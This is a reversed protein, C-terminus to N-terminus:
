SGFEQSSPAKPSFSHATTRHTPSRVFIPERIVEELEAIYEEALTRNAQRKKFASM